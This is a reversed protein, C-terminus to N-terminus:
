NIKYDAILLIQQRLATYHIQIYLSNIYKYIHIYIYTIYM